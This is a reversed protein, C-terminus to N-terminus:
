LGEHSTVPGAKGKKGANKAPWQHHLITQDM